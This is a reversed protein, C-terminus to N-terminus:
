PDEIPNICILPVSFMTHLWFYSSLGETIVFDYDDTFLKSSESDITNMIHEPSIDFVFETFITKLEVDISYGFMKLLKTIMNIINNFQEDTREEIITDDLVVLVKKINDIM